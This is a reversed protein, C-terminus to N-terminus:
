LPTPQSTWYALLMDNLAGTYLLGRLVFFWMDNRQTAPAGQAILWRREADQLSEAVTRGFWTSLGENITPGGTARLIEGNLTTM